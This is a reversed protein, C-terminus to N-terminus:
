QQRQVWCYGKVHGPGIVPANAAYWECELSTPEAALAKIHHVGRGALEAAGKDDIFTIGEPPSFTAILRKAGMGIDPSIEYTPTYCRDADCTMGDAFANTACIWNFAIAINVFISAKAHM